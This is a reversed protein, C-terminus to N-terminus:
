KHVFRNYSLGYQLGDFGSGKDSYRATAASAGKQASFTWYGSSDAGDSDYVIICAGTEAGAQGGDYVSMSGYGASPDTVECHTVVSGDAYDAREMFFGTNQNATIPASCTLTEVLFAQEGGCACLVVVVIAWMNRM